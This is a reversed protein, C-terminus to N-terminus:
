EPHRGRCPTEDDVIAVIMVTPRTTTHMMSARRDAVPVFAVMDVCHGPRCVPRCQSQWSPLDIGFSADIVQRPGGSASDVQATRPRNEGDSGVHRCGFVRRMPGIRFRVAIPAATKDALVMDRGSGGPPPTNACAKTLGIQGALDHASPLKGDLTVFTSREAWERYTADDVGIVAVQPAGGPM